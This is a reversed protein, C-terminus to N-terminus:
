NTVSLAIAVTGTSLSSGTGTIGSVTVVYNGVPTGPNYGPGHHEYGYRTNCGGLAMSGALLLMLFSLLHLTEPRIRSFVRKRALGLGALALIGPV